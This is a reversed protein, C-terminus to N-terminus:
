TVTRAPSTAASPIDLKLSKVATTVYPWPRGSNPSGSRRRRSAARAPLVEDPRGCSIEKGSPRVPTRKQPCFACQQVSPSVLGNTRTRRRVCPRGRSAWGTPPWLSNAVQTSTRNLGTDFSPHFAFSARSQHRILFGRLSAGTLQPWRSAGQEVPFHRGHSVVIVAGALKLNRYLEREWDRGAKIGHDPDFDLFLSDYGHDKLRRSIEGAVEYDESSHSLFISPSRTM